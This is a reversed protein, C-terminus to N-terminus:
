NIEQEGPSSNGSHEHAYVSDSIVTLSSIVVGCTIISMLKKM